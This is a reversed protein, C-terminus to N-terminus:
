AHLFNTAQGLVAFQAGSDGSGKWILQFNQQLYPTPKESLVRIQTHRAVNVFDSFPVGRQPKSSALCVSRNALAQLM